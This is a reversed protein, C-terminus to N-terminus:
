QSVGSASSQFTLRPHVIGKINQAALHPPVGNFQISNLQAKNHNGASDWHTLQHKYTQSVSIKSFRGGAGASPCYYPM